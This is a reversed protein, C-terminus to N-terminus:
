MGVEKARKESRATSLNMFNICAILLIIIAILSFLRVYKIMGGINKGNEFDSYLHWRSMPFAFYSSFDDQGHSRKIATISKNLIATDANPTTQIFVNWSSNVWENMSAQIDPENYNFPMIWDFQFTSNAPINKVIATVKVTRNKDITLIKNIPDALGFFAKAANETLVITNPEKLASAANGKLFQWSFIDFFHNSVVYGRQKIKNNNYSLVNQQQYTTVVAHKIQPSNNKIASALPMAMSKDTLVQSNFNRNAIVQYINDYNKQFRDYTLENYVWLLIFITCAIGLTLGLINTLSFGKNRLLNRWATIVYNKIM